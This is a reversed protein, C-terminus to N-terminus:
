PTPDALLRPYGRRSGAARVGRGATGSGRNSATQAEREFRSPDTQLVDPLVKIAVERRLRSDRARYVEGMGGAGLLALIEYSGFRSGPALSM